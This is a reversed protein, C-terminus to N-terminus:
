YLIIKRGLTERIVSGIKQATNAEMADFSWLPFLRQPRKVMLGLKKLDIQSGVAAIMVQVDMTVLREYAALHTEEEDTDHTEPGATILFVLRLSESGGTVNSTSSERELFCFNEVAEQLALDIRGNGSADTRDMKIGCVSFLTKNNADFGIKTQASTGYTVLAARSKGPVVNLEGALSEVLQLQKDFHKQSVISSCDLAFVIDATFDGDLNFPLFGLELVCSLKQIGVSFFDILKNLQLTVGFKLM